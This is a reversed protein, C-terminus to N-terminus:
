AIAKAVQFRLLGASFQALLDFIEEGQRLNVRGVFDEVGKVILQKLIEVFCTFSLCIVSDGIQGKKIFVRVPAVLIGDERDLPLAEQVEVM